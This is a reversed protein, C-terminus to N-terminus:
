FPVVRVIGGRGPVPSAPRRVVTRPPAAMAVAIALPPPPSPLPAARAAVAATASRAVAAKSTQLQELPELRTTTLRPAREHLIDPKLGAVVLLFLAAMAFLGSAVAQPARRRRRVTRVAVLPEAEPESAARTRVIGSEPYAPVAPESVVGEDGGISIALMRSIDPIRATDERDEGDEAEVALPTPRWAAHPTDPTELPSPVTAVLAPVEPLM